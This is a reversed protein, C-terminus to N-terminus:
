VHMIGSRCGDIGGNGTALYRGQWEDPLWLEFSISSRKSTPIQLAVRCVGAELLQETRGCSPVNDSLALTTGGTIHELRSLTSNHIHRDPRFNLCRQRFSKDDTSTQKFRTWAVVCLPVCISVKSLLKM